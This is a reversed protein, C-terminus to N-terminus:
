NIGAVAEEGKRQTCRLTAHCLRRSSFNADCAQVDEAPRRRVSTEPFQVLFRCYTAATVTAFWSKKM